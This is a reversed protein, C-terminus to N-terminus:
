RTVDKQALLLGSLLTQVNTSDSLSTIQLDWYSRGPLNGTQTPTLSITVIGAPADVTTVTFTAAAVPSEPVQRAMAEVKYNTLDISFDLSLSFADGKVLSIDYLATASEVPTSGYTPMPLYIRVPSSFDDIEKPAFVPVYRGTAKSIRRLTFVEVAYLGIGLAASLEKYQEQRAQIMEMLQQFRQSRPITVGDPTLIDIDFSADTALAWLAQTTALLAAPYEEVVPMTSLTLTRGYQDTRKGIHQTLAANVIDDLDSPAFYRYHTGTVVISAGVAPAAALVLRGSREDISGAVTSNNVKVVVTTSDVPYHTLNWVTSVGDGVYEETFTAPLDALELRVRNTIDSLLAM